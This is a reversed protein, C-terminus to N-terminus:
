ITLRYCSPNISAYWGIHFDKGNINLDTYTWTAVSEGNLYFSSGSPLFSIVCHSWENSPNTYSYSFCQGNTCSSSYLRFTNSRVVFSITNGLFNFVGDDSNTASPNIWFSFSLGGTYNDGILNGISNGFGISDKYNFELATTYNPTTTIPLASPIKWSPTVAM